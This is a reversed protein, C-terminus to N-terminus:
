EKSWRMLVANEETPGGATAAQRQERGVHLDLFAIIRDVHSAPDALLDHYRITLLFPSPVSSSRAAAEAWGGSSEAASRHRDRVRGSTAAHRRYGFPGADEDM